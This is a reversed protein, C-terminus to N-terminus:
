VWLTTVASSIRTSTALEAIASCSLGEVKLLESGEAQFQLSRVDNAPRVALRWTYVNQFGHRVRIISQVGANPDFLQDFMAGRGGAKKKENICRHIEHGEHRCM